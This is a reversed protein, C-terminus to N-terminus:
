LRGWGINPMGWGSPMIWKGFQGVWAADGKNCWDNYGSKASFCWGQAGADSADARTYYDVSGDVGVLNAYGSVQRPARNDMSTGSILHWCGSTFNTLHSGHMMGTKNIGNLYFAGGYFPMPDNGPNAEILIPTTVTRSSVGSFYCQWPASTSAIRSIKAGSFMGFGQYDFLGNSGQGSYRTGAALGPCRYVEMSKGVYKFITGGKVCNRVTEIDAVSVSGALWDKQWDQVNARSLGAYTISGVVGPLREEHESSFMIFALGLQHLNAKCKASKALDQARKLSPMLIAVLLAIIAIVVLLEILTFARTPRSRSM